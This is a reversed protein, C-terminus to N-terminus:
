AYGFRALADCFVAGCLDQLEPPLDRRWRGISTARDPTTRHRDLAASPADGAAVMADVESPRAELELYRLMETTIARPDKALDEYRVILSGPADDAAAALLDVTEGVATVYARDTQDPRRGFGAYGRRRDMALISALMDRFDRVLIIERLEPVVDRALRRAWPNPLLKEVFLRAPAAGTSEALREYFASMRARAFAVAASVHDATMAAGVRDDVPYPVPADTHGHWWADGAMDPPMLPVLYSTPTTLTRVVELWYSLFRAEGE